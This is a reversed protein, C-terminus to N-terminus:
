TGVPGLWRLREGMRLGQMPDEQMYSQLLVSLNKKYHSGALWVFIASDRVIGSEQMMCYVTDAWQARALASM